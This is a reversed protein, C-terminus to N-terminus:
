VSGFALSCNHGGFGFSTALIRRVSVDRAANPVCDLDCAPDPNEYNITPHVVGHRITLACVIAAVGASAGCLHGIMSKTSSVVIKRSHAGLAARIAKTEAEDGLPTGTAHTNVYDIDAPNLRADALALQLSRAAGSGEPHPATLHHADGTQGAGLIECYIPAGRRRAHELEELVVVGAGEGLVFGDRDRDFPRCAGAPDDNRESLARAACFGALGMPTLAAEAGGSVIVDTRGLRISDVGAAIADAASACASVVASTPGQLHYHISVAAPAANVMMKPILFPSVRGPGVDRYRAHDDEFASMGGIGSALIVGCRFPDERSFDLGSDTVAEIAAALAFQAFRDMRKAVKPDIFADPNFDRVEGGFRVKFASVDFRSILGVGSEGACLRKWFNAVNLALPNITGLGTIVVRRNM